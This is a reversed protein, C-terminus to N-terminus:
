LVHLFSENVPSVDINPLFHEVIIRTAPIESVGVFQFHHFYASQRLIYLKVNILQFTKFPPYINKFYLDIQFCRITWSVHLIQMNCVVKSIKGTMWKTNVCLMASLIRESCSCCRASIRRSEDDLIWDKVLASTSSIVRVAWVAFWRISSSARSEVLVANGVDSPVM